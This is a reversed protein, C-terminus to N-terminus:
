NLIFEPYVGFYGGDKISSNQATEYKKMHRIVQKRGEGM